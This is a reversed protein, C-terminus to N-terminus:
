IVKAFLAGSFMFLLFCCAQLFTWEIQSTYAKAMIHFGAQRDGWTQDVERVIIWKVWWPFPRSFETIINSLEIDTELQIGRQTAHEQIEDEDQEHKALIPKILESLKSQMQTQIACRLSKYKALFGFIASVFLLAMCVKFGEQSLYPLVSEIQTILLAGTAGTGALLWMSFKEIAVTTEAMSQYLSSVIEQEADEKNLRNWEILPKDSNPQNVFRGKGYLAQTIGL